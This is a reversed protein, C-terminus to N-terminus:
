PEYLKREKKSAPRLSIISMAESGLMSFAVAVLLAGGLRGIMMSRGRKAPIVIAAAFDFATEFEAFDIGHKALNSLRKPEDWTILM